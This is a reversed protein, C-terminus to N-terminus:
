KKTVRKNNTFNKLPCIDDFGNKLDSDFIRIYKQTMTLDSHTLIKQLAFANGGNLIYQKAFTHRFSHAGRRKLKRRKCYRAFSHELANVKLQKGFEDPFLYKNGIDWMMLYQKLVKELCTSMPIIAIHKNKLHTYKIEKFSFDLDNVKLNVITSARAGTGLIFNIIVWTRYEAFGSSRNPKELLISIESEPITKIQPEQTKIKNIVFSDCFGKKMLWYAFVRLHVIYFNISIPNMGSDIMQHIWKQVSDKGIKEGIERCFRAYVDRYNQITKKSLGLTEKESIFDYFFFDENKAHRPKIRPM